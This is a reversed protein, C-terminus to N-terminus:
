RQPIGEATLERIYFTILTGAQEVICLPSSITEGKKLTTNELVTGESLTDSVEPCDPCFVLRTKGAYEVRGTVITGTQPHTFLFEVKEPVPTEQQPPAAKLGCRELLADLQKEKETRELNDDIVAQVGLYAAKEGDLETFLAGKLLVVVAKIRQAHVFQTVTKWHRPFDEASLIILEPAIEEMNDMAKVPSRYHIVNFGAPELVDSFERGTEDAEAIILAKM